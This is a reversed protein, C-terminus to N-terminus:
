SWPAKEWATVAEPSCEIISTVGALTIAPVALSIKCQSNPGSSALGLVGKISSAWSVCMRANTIRKEKEMAPSGYGFFVGRHETTIVLAVADSVVSETTAEKAQKTKTTM